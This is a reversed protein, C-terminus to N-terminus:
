ELAIMFEGVFENRVVCVNVFTWDKVSVGDKVCVFECVNVLVLVRVILLESVLELVRTEEYEFTPEYMWVFVLVWVFMMDIVCVAVVDMWADSVCVWVRTKDGVDTIDIVLTEVYVIVYTLEFVSEEDLVIVWVRTLVNLAVLM